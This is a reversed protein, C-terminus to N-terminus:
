YDLVMAGSAKDVADSMLSALAGLKATDADTRAKKEAASAGSAGPGADRKRSRSAAAAKAPASAPGSIADKLKDFYSRLKMKVFKEKKADKSECPLPPRVLEIDKDQLNVSDKLMLTKFTCAVPNKAGHAHNSDVSVEVDVIRMTTEAEDSSSPLGWAVYPLLADESGDVYLTWGGIKACAYCLKTPELSINGGLVYTLHKLGMYKNDVLAIFRDGNGDVKQFRHHSIPDKRALALLALEANLMLLKITFPSRKAMAADADAAVYSALWKQNLASKTVPISRKQCMSQVADGPSEDAGTATDSGSELQQLVESAVVQGPVESETGPPDRPASEEDTENGFFHQMDLIWTKVEDIFPVVAGEHGASRKSSSDVVFTALSMWFEAADLQSVISSDAASIAATVEGDLLAFPFDGAATWPVATRLLQLIVLSRFRLFSRLSDVDSFVYDINGGVQFDRHVIAAEAVWSPDIKSCTVACVKHVVDQLSPISSLGLKWNLLEQEADHFVGHGQVPGHVMAALHKRCFAMFSMGQDSGLVHFSSVKAAPSGPVGADSEATAASAAVAVSSQEQELTSLDLFPEILPVWEKVALYGKSFEGLKQFAFDRFCKLTAISVDESITIGQGDGFAINLMLQVGIALMDLAKPFCEADADIDIPPTRSLLQWLGEDVCRSIAVLIKVSEVAPDPVVLPQEPPPAEGAGVKKKKRRVDKAKKKSNDASAMLAAVPKPKFDVVALLTKSLKGAHDSKCLLFRSQADGILPLAFKLLLSILQSRRSERLQDSFKM